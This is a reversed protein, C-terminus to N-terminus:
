AANSLCILFHPPLLCRSVYPSIFTTGDGRIYVLIHCISCSSNSFFRPESSMDPIFHILLYSRQSTIYQRIVGSSAHIAATFHVSSAEALQIQLSSINCWGSSSSGVCVETINGNLYSARQSIWYVGFKAQHRAYSYSYNTIIKLHFNHWSSPYCISVSDRRSDYSLPSILWTQVVETGINQAPYWPQSLNHYHVMQHYLSIRCSNLYLHLAHMNIQIIFWLSTQNRSRTHPSADM